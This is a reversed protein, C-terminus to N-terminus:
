VIVRARSRASGPVGSAPMARRTPRPAAVARTGVPVYTDIKSRASSDSASRAATAHDHGHEVLRSVHAGHEVLQQALLEHDRVLDDDDLAVAGVARALDHLAELPAGPTWIM